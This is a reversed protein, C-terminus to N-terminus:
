GGSGSGIGGGSGTGNSPPGNPIGAIPDGLNPLNNQIPLKVNPPMVVTPEVALKPHDNRIVVAPPTIQEMSFKPLKGKPAQLKDRDGGGGGGQLRKGGGDPVVPMIGDLDPAILTVAQQQEVKKAVRAGLVSVIVIGGIFAGHALVSIIASRNRYRDKEWISKVRIAKSTLQLPEAKERSLRDKIQQFLSTWVPASVDDGVMRVPVARSTLQLPESKSPHLRESIQTLLSRWFPEDIQGEPLLLNLEASAAASVPQEGSAPSAQLETPM